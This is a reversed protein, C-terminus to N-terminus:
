CAKVNQRQNVRGADDACDRGRKEQPLKGIVNPARTRAGMRLDVLAEM